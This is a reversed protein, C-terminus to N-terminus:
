FRRAMTRFETDSKSESKLTLQRDRKMEAIKSAIANELRDDFNDKGNDIWFRATKAQYSTCFLKIDDADFGKFKAGGIFYKWIKVAWDVQKPTGSEENIPCTLTVIAMHKQREITAIAKRAESNGDTSAQFLEDKEEQTSAYTPLM